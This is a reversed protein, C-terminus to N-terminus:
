IGPVASLSSTKEHSQFTSPLSIAFEQFARLAVAPQDQHILHGVGPFRVHRCTPLAAMTADADANTLAGSAAPDGQLLLMPCRVQSCLAREDYGDLWRGEIVPTFVEPDLQALCRASFRLSEASRLQGLKSLGSRGPVSVALEALAAALEDAGSSLRAVDRMGLFLAQWPTQAIRRGMTHFPPDELVIGRVLGPLASAVALAVMAGLSHGYILVPQRIEDRVFAVADPVYDSVLYRGPTRASGGHGRFDSALVHWTPVLGEAFERYDEACRGV